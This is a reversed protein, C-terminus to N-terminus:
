EEKKINLSTRILNLQKQDVAISDELDDIVQDVPDLFMTYKDCCNRSCREWRGIVKYWGSGYWEVNTEDYCDNLTITRAWSKMDEKTDFRVFKDKGIDIIEKVAHIKGYHISVKEDDEDQFDCVDCGYVTIEEDRADIVEEAIHVKKILIKM